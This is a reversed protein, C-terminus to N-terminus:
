VKLLTKIYFVMEKYKLMAAEDYGYNIMKIAVNIYNKLMDNAIAIKDEHVLLRSAIPPSILDYEKLLEKGEDTNKMYRERFSRLIELEYCNDAKGLIECMATTLYCGTNHEEGDTSNDNHNCGNSDPDYYKGWFTCYCEGFRNKDSLDMYSCYRCKSM